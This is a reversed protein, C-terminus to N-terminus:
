PVAPPALQNQQNSVGIQKSQDWNDSQVRLDAYLVNHSGLREPGGHFAEFDYVMWLDTNLTIILDNLLATKKFGIRRGNLFEEWEYSTGESEFYRPKGLGTVMTVTDAPCAFLDSKGGTELKLAEPLSLRAKRLGAVVAPDTAERSPMAAIWPFTDRNVQLYAQMAVGVQHLNHKCKTKNSIRRAESISPMLITILLAMIAVVVMVEILTFGRRNRM